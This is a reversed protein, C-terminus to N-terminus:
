TEPSSDRAVVQILSLTGSKLAPTFGGSQKVFWTRRSSPTDEGVKKEDELAVEEWPL